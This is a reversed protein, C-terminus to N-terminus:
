QRKSHINTADYIVDHGSKLNEKIRSHLIKFVTDNNEQLNENGFLERRIADSNCIIANTEDSLQKAYTSKGSGPLGCLMTLTPRNM